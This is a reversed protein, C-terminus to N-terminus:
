RSAIEVRLSDPDDPLVEISVYRTQSFDGGVNQRVLVQASTVQFAVLQYLGEESISRSMVRTQKYEGASDIASFYEHPRSVRNIV